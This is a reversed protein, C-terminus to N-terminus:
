SEEPPLLVCIEELTQRSALPRSWLGLWDAQAGVEGLPPNAPTKRSLSAGRPVAVCSGSPIRGRKRELGQCTKGM